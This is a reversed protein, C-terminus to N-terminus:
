TPGKLKLDYRLRPSKVWEIWEHGEIIKYMKIIDGRIRRENLSNLTLRWLRKKYALESFGYEDSM